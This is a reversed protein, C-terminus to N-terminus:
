YMFLWLKHIFSSANKLEQKEMCKDLNHFEFVHLLVQNVAPPVSAFDLLQQIKRSSFNSVGISRCLGMELCKEMGFWTSELDLEDYDEESPLPNLVGPKLKVPWHVLYLDIYEM